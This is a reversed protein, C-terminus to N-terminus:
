SNGEITFLGNEELRDIAMRGIDNCTEESIDLGLENRVRDFITASILESATIYRDMEAQSDDESIVFKEALMYPVEEFHYLYGDEDDYCIDVVRFPGAVNDIKVLLYDGIEYKAKETM